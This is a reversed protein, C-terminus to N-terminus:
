QHLEAAIERNSRGTALRAFVTRERDTLKGLVADRGSRRDPDPLLPVFQDILRRTTTPALVAEGAAVTRIAGVLEAPPADKLLFGSAGAKLGAFVYQDLDFTTLILVKGAGGATIAATAQIGDTGPMRVDMLVVDPRLAAAMAIGTAGDAAEGVVQLDPEAELILRFGMRLLSQDDVLLIRIM